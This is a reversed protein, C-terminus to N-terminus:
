AVVVEAALGMGRLSSTIEDRYMPNLIVVLNPGLDRLVTPDQVEIGAGPLFTGHKRPNLDVATTIPSEGLLALFTVAKAGAGWLAVRDAGALRARVADLRERLQAAGGRAATVFGDVAPTEVTSPGAATAEVSLYQDGFRTRVDTVGYGARDLLRVLSPASFYSVHPYVLDWCGDGGFVAEGAPVEVYLSTVAPRLDRLFRLPDPVHELVHRACLLDGGAHDSAPDFYEAVVRVTEPLTEDGPRHSPDYGVGTARGDRCLSALFAGQGCGIEVVKGGALGYRRVLEDALVDRYERFRPSFDLASEYDDAYTLAAEDFARNRVYGCAPCLVLELRGTAARRAEDAGRHLASVNLPVGDVAHLLEEGDHACVPCATTM